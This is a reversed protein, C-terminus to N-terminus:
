VKQRGLEDIFDNLLKENEESPRAKPDVLSVQAAISSAGAAEM